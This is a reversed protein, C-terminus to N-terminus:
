NNQAGEDLWKKLKDKEENTLQPAGAQPMDQKDFVRSKVLGLDARTKFDDFTNFDGPAGSGSSPAHCTACKAVVIPKIDTKYSIANSQTTDRNGKGGCEIWKGLRELDSANLPGSPPMTQAEIARSKIGNLNAQIVELKTYDGPAKGGNYHCSVCNNDFISKIGNDFTSSDCSNDISTTPVTTDFVEKKCSFMVVIFAFILILTNTKM